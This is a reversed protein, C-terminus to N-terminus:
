VSLIEAIKDLVTFHTKSVSARRLRQLELISTRSTRSQELYKAFMARWEPIDRAQLSGDEYTWEYAIVKLM